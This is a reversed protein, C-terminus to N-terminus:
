MLKGEEININGWAPAIGEEEERKKKGRKKEANEPSRDRKLSESERM